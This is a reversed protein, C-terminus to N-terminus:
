RRRQDAQLTAPGSNAKTSRKEREVPVSTAMAKAKVRPKAASASAALSAGITPAKTAPM